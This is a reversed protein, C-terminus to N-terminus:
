AGVKENIITNIRAIMRRLNKVVHPKAVRGSSSQMRMNFQERMIEQKEKKLEEITKQRLEETKM